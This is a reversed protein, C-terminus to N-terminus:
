LRGETMVDNAMDVIRGADLMKRLALEIHATQSQAEIADVRAVVADQMRDAGELSGDQLQAMYRLFLGYAVAALSM